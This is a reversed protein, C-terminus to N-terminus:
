RASLRFVLRLRPLYHHTLAGCYAGVLPPLLPNLFPADSDHHRFSAPVAGHGLLV